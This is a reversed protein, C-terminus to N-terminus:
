VVEKKASMFFLNFAPFVVEDAGANGDILVAQAAINRRPDLVTDVQNKLFQHLLKQQRYQVPRCDM